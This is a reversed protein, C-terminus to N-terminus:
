VASPSVGGEGAPVAATTTPAANAIQHRVQTRQKWSTRNMGAPHNGASTADYGSSLDTYRCLKAAESAISTARSELSERKKKPKPISDEKAGQGKRLSKVCAKGKSLCTSIKHTIASLGAAMEFSEFSNTHKPPTRLTRYRKEFVRYLCISSRPRSLILGSGPTLCIAVKSTPYHERPYTLLREQYARLALPRPNLRRHLIRQFLKLYSM